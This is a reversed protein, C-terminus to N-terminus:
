PDPSESRDAAIVLFPPRRQQPALAPYRKVAAPTPRPEELSSLLLGAQILGNVYTELTRHYKVVDTELWRVHRAGEEFYRDVPWFLQAGTRDLHWENTALATCMPHEISFAVRGGPRLATAIRGILTAYDRVYHLALSSVILEYRDFGLEFAEIPENVYSISSDPTRNRAEAIM